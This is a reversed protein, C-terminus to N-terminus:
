HRSCISPILFSYLKRGESTSLQDKSPKDKSLQEPILPIVKTRLTLLPLQSKAQKKLTSLGAPLKRVEEKLDIGDMSLIELLSRYQLRSIGTGECWIGLALCFKTPDATVRHVMPQSDDEPHQSLSLQHLLPEETDLATSAELGVDPLEFSGLPTKDASDQTAEKPSTDGYQDILQLEQLDLELPLSLDDPRNGLNEIIEDVGIITSDREDPWDIDGFGSTHLDGNDNDEFNMRSRKPKAAPQQEISRHVSTDNNSTVGGSAVARSQPQSSDNSIIPARASQRWGYFTRRM